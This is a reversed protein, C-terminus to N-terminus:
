PVARARDPILHIFAGGANRRPHRQWKKMKEYLKGNLNAM